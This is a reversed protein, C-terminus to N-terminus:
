DDEEGEADEEDDVNGIIRPSVEITEEVEEDHGEEEKIMVEEEGATAFAPVGGGPGKKWLVNLVWEGRKRGEEGDEEGEEEETDKDEEDDSDVGKKSTTMIRRRRSIIGVEKRCAWEVLTPDGEGGFVVKAEKGQAAREMHKAVHEMRQNWAEKGRFVHIKECGRVPCRMLTPLPCREHKFTTQLTALRAEWERLRAVQEPNNLKSSSSHLPKRKTTSSSSSTTNPLHDRISPDAHMRRYHQTFLDKRNFLNNSNSNRSNNTHQTKACDGEM